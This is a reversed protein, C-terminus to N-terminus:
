CGPKASASRCWPSFTLVDATRNFPGVNFNSNNQLPVSILSAVPNQTAKALAETDSAAPTTQAPPQPSAPADQALLSTSFVFLGISLIARQPLRMM